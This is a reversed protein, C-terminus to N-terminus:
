GLSGGPKIDLGVLVGKIRGRDAQRGGDGIGPVLQGLGLGQEADGAILDLGVLFDEVDHRNLKALTGGCRGVDQALTLEDGSGFGGDDRDFLRGGQQM